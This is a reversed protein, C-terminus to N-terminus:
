LDSGSAALARVETNIGSGLASWASGNWKAIGSASVGGVTDFAGGVYLDSGSVALAAVYPTQASSAMGSGLASWVSGNWRAIRNATVGGANTFDGGVYLDSGNVALAGVGYFGNVGSGLASWASGNWKAINRAEVGGASDFNGGVYLDNGSVALARVSTSAGGGNV